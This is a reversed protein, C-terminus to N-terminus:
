NEEEDSFMQIKEIDPEDSYQQLDNETIVNLIDDFRSYEGSLINYQIITQVSDKAMRLKKLMPFIIKKDHLLYENIDDLNLALKYGNPSGAIIIGQMRLGGVIKVTFARKSIEFKQKCLDDYIKDSYIWQRSQEEYCRALFLSHLTFYQMKKEAEQANELLELVAVAKNYLYRYLEERLFESPVPLPKTDFHGRPFFDYGVEKTSLIDRIQKSYDSKRTKDYCYLLSGGIFDAIQLLTQEEDDAYAHQVKGAFFDEPQKRTYYKLCEDQFEKSGYKDIVIDLDCCREEILKNLKDHLFKYRSKKYLALPSNPIFKSKDTILFLYTFNLKLLDKLIAIRLDHRGGVRSSKLTAGKRHEQNIKKLGDTVSQVDSDPVIVATCIYLDSENTGSMLTGTEDIYVHMLPSTFQGM